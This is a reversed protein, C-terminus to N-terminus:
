LLGLQVEGRPGVRLVPSRGLAVHFTTGLGATAVLFGAVALLAQTALRTRLVALYGMEQFWLVEVWLRVGLGALLFVALLGLLLLGLRRPPQGPSQRRIPTAM